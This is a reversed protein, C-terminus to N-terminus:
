FVTMVCCPLSRDKPVISVQIARKLGGATGSLDYRFSFTIGGRVDKFVITSGTGAM